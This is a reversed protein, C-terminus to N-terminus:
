QAICLFRASLEAARKRAKEVAAKLLPSLGHSPDMLVSLAAETTGGPSTVAKRLDAPSKKQTGLLAVSGSITEEVLLRALDPELGVAMAAETFAEIFYYLYAPGSGSIATVADLPTEDETWVVTGGAQLLAIALEKQDGDV